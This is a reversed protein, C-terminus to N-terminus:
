NHVIGHLVDIHQVPIYELKDTTEQLEYVREDLNLIHDLFSSPHTSQPSTLHPKVHQGFSKLFV